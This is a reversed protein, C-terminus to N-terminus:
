NVPKIAVLVIEATLSSPNEKNRRMRFENVYVASESIEIEYLFDYLQKLSVSNLNLRIKEILYGENESAALPQIGSVNRELSNKRILNGTYSFLSFDKRSINPSNRSKKSSNDTYQRCLNELEQMESKKQSILKNLSNLRNRDPILIFKIETLIIFLVAFLLYKRNKM